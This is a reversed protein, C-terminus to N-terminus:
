QAGQSLTSLYLNEPSTICQVLASNFIKETLPPAAILQLFEKTVGFLAMESFPKNPSKENFARALEAVETCSMRPVRSPDLPGYIAAPSPRTYFSFDFPVYATFTERGVTSPRRPALKAAKVGELCAADLENNGSSRDVRAAQITGDLTATVEIRVKGMPTQILAAPPAVVVPAKVFNLPEDEATFRIFLTKEPAIPLKTNQTAKLAASDWNPDTSPSAIRAQQLNGGDTQVVEITTTPSAGPRKSPTYTLARSLAEEAQRLESTQPKVATPLQANVHCAALICLLPVIHWYLSRITM